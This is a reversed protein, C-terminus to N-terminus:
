GRVFLKTMLGEMGVVWDSYMMLGEGVVVCGGCVSCCASSEVRDELRTRWLIHGTELEVALFQHSHSGIYVVTSGEPLLPCTRPWRSATLPGEKNPQQKPHIGADKPLVENRTETIGEGSCASSSPPTTASNGGVRVVLPSADVCKETDVAWLVWGVEIPHDPLSQQDLVLSPNQQM